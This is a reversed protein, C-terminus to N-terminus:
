SSLLFSHAYPYNVVYCHTGTVMVPPIVDNGLNFAVHVKDIDVEPILLDDLEVVPVTLHLLVM